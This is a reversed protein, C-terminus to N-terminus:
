PPDTPSHNMRLFNRTKWRPLNACLQTEFKRNATASLIHCQPNMVPPKPM